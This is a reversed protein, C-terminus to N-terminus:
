YVTNALLTQAQQILGKIEKKKMPDVEKKLMKKMTQISYVTITSIYANYQRQLFFSIANIDVIKMEEEISDILEDIDYDTNYKKGEPILFVSVLKAFNEIGKNEKLYNTYDLYQSGTVDSINANCKYKVGKIIYEKKLSVKPLEKKLFDLHIFQEKYKVLPLDEVDEGVVVKLLEALVMEDKDEVQLLQYIQLYQELTIDEWKTIKQKM